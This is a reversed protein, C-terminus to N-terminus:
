KQGKPKRQDKRSKDKTRNTQKIQKGKSQREKWRNFKRDRMAM